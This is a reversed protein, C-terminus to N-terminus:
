ADSGSSDSSSGEVAELPALFCFVCWPNYVVPNVDNFVQCVFDSDPTECGLTEDCSQGFQRLTQTELDVTENWSGRVSRLGTIRLMLKMEVKSLVHNSDPVVFCATENWFGSTHLSM